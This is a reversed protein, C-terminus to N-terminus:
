ISITSIPDKSIRKGYYIICLGVVIFVCMAIILIYNLINVVEIAYHM